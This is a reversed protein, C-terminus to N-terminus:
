RTLTLTIWVFVFDEMRDSHDLCIRLRGDAKEVIVLSSVRETPEDIEEIIDLQKMRDLETRPPHVAPIANEEVQIHHEGSLCGIEGFLDQSPIFNADDCNLIEVRKILNLRQCTELGIIPSSNTPVVFM